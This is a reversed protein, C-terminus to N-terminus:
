DIHSSLPTSQTIMFNHSIIAAIDIASKKWSYLRALKHVQMLINILTLLHRSVATVAKLDIM